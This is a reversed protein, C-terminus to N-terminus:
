NKPVTYKSYISDPLIKKGETLTNNKRKFVDFSNKLRSKIAEDDIPVEGMTATLQFLSNGNLHYNDMVFDKIDTKTQMLPYAHRNQFQRTTDLGDGMWSVL